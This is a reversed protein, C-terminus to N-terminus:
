AQVVRQRQEGLGDIGLRMTQGPRLFVPPKQGLGVGPPTGTSIVDGPQLSMFRSLYSILFPVKYVMTATTGDQFRKGDVELWLKLNNSDPVEDATVLWPGLPGFTDCGKGKDWTGQREIQFERESVDNIVCYGAVHKLADAEDIYRGGEGIVVGLEVEWDTKVSGRPIEVDDNPGIIASTWKNFIVPESPVQAGTEAAHDSYNLGICIFKGVQGVCPGIRSSGSVAPLSQPDVARIRAIGAPTLVAGAIDPVVSSLDRLIGGTDLLGPKEHGKPGYRLLKM